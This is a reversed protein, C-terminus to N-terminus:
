PQASDEEALNPRPMPWRREVWLYPLGVIALTLGISLLPMGRVVLFFAVTALAANLGLVGSTVTRHSRGASVLRQYAHSRHAEYWREGRLARRILTATSDFFFVSSLVLWGLIPFAGSNETAISLSAFTFGLFGSGVDGMFIRAPPWNLVLFGAACGALLLALTAAPQAGGTLVMLIGAAGAVTVTQGAALGDIGDMFNFLNTWWVIGVAALVGGLLFPIDLVVSGFSVTSLGGLWWLAWLASAVQVLARARRSVGRRDDMWGVLAVAGGGGVLAMVWTPPVRGFSVLALLGVIFTVAIALGGGRPVPTAHLSRHNPLDLISRNVAYRKVWRTGAFSLGAATVVVVLDIM